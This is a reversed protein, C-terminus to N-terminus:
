KQSNNRRWNGIVRKVETYNLLHARINLKDIIRQFKQSKLVFRVLLFNVPICIGFVPLMALRSPMFTDFVSVLGVQMGMNIAHSLAFGIGKEATPQSHFTFYNSLFFNFIFSVAYSAMTAVQPSRHLPGLFVVYMGYQIGTAIVGTIGFRIIEGLRSEGTLIHKVSLSM